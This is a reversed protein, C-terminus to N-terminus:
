KKVSTVLKSKLATMTSERVMFYDVIDNTKYTTPFWKAINDHFQFFLENVKKKLNRVRKQPSRIKRPSDRVVTVVGVMRGHFTIFDIDGLSALVKADWVLGIM